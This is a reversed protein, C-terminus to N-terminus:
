FALAAGSYGEISFAGIRIPSKGIDIADYGSLGVNGQNLKRYQRLQADLLQM